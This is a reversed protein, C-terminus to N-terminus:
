KRTTKGSDEKKNDPQSKVLVKILYRRQFDREKLRSLPIPDECPGLHISHDEEDLDLHTAIEDPQGTDDQPEDDNENTRQGLIHEKVTERLALFSRSENEVLSLVSEDVNEVKTPPLMQFSWDHVTELILVDTNQDGNPALEKFLRRASLAMLKQHAAFWMKDNPTPTSQRIFSRAQRLTNLLMISSCNDLFELIGERGNLLKELELGLLRNKEIQVAHSESKCGEHIRIRNRRIQGEMICLFRVLSLKGGVKPNLQAHVSEASNNTRVSMGCVSWLSPPFRPVIPFPDTPPTGIYTRILTEAIENFDDKHGNPCHDSWALLIRAIVESTALEVPLLPLMMFRRKTKEGLVHTESMTGTQRKINNIIPTAKVRLNKTYHFLCCKVKVSHFLQHVANIFSSEFDCM